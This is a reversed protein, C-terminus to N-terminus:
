KVGEIPKFASNGSFLALRAKLSQSKRAQAASIAAPLAVVGSSTISSSLVANHSANGAGVEKKVVPAAEM